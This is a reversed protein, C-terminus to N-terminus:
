PLSPLSGLRVVVGATFEAQWAIDVHFAYLCTGNGCALATANADVFTAFVRGDLRLGIRPHPFIKAGGGAGFTFRVENDGGAAYRTLGLVGTLFPRIQRGEFEQLGGAQFHDIAVNIRVPVGLPGTLATVTGGEHSFLGEFQMGGSMPVDFVVGLAPAGDSDVRGGAATEFLDNSFRYGGIPAVELGQARVPAAGALLLAAILWASLRCHM